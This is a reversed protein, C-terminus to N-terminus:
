VKDIIEGCKKCGRVVRGAAVIKRSVRTPQNCRPCILALKSGALPAPKEIIGGQFKQGPKQHRKVLNVGDVVYADVERLVKIIKQKRGRDKGSRVLVTDGKKLRSPM